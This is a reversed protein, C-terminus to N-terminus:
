GTIRKSGMVRAEKGLSKGEITSGGQWASNIM